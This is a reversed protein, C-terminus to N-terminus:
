LTKADEMLIFEEINGFKQANQKIWSEPRDWWRIEELKKRQEDDFRYRIVRAPVGAVISYPPVDKTVVAGAAIVAGNGISIGQMILANDGIWVDHGIQVITKKVEDSYIFEPFLAADVYTFGSQMQTSFFSPHTSVFGTTPHNGKVVRVYNGISCYRGVEGYISNNAGMYSGYGFVGSFFSRSGIRNGGEFNSSMAVIADTAIIVNRKRYRYNLIINKLLHKLYM